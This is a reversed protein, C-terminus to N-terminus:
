QNTEVKGDAYRITIRLFGPDRIEQFPEGAQSFALPYIKELDRFNLLLDREVAREVGPLRPRGFSLVKCVPEPEFRKIM